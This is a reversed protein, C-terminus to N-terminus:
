WRPLDGLHDGREGVDGGICQAPERFTETIDITPDPTPRRAAEVFNVDDSDRSTM